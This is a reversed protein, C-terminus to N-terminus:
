AARALSATKATVRCGRFLPSFLEAVKGDVSSVFLDVAAMAGTTRLRVRDGLDPDCEDYGGENEIKAVEFVIEGPVTWLTGEASSLLFRPKQLHRAFHMQRSRAEHAPVLVYGRFLPQRRFVPKHEGPPLWKKRYQPLYVPIGLRRLEVEVDYQRASVCVAATWADKAM